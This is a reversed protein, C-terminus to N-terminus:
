STSEKARADEDARRRDEVIRFYRLEFQVRELALVISGSWPTHAIASLDVACAKAHDVARVTVDFAEDIAKREREDSV